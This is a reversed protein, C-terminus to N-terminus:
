LEGSPARLLDLLIQVGDEEYYFQEAIPFNISNETCLFLSRRKDNNTCEVTYVGNVLPVELVIGGFSGYDTDLVVFDGREFV